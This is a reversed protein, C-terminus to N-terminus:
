RRGGTVPRTPGRPRPGAARAASPAVGTWRKFARAFARADSYGLRAAVEDVSLSALWALARQKREDELLERASTGEDALARELSRRSMRLARALQPVGVEGGDLLEVIAARARASVPTGREIAALMEELRAEVVAALAPRAGPVALARISRPYVVESRDCGFEPVVGGIVRAFAEVVDAPPAAHVFRVANPRAKGGTFRAASRVLDLTECEIHHQWGARHIPGLPSLLARLEGGDDVIRWRYVDSLTPSYRHFRDIGDGFRPQNAVVFGILSREDPVAYAVARAPLDRGTAAVAREWAEILAGAAIRDEFRADEAAADGAIPRPDVGLARLTRVLHTLVIATVSPV